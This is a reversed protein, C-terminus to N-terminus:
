SRKRSGCGPRWRQRIAVTPSASGHGIRATGPPSWRVSAFGRRGIRREEGGWSRPQGRFLGGAVQCASEVLDGGDEDRGEVIHPGRLLGVWRGRVGGLCGFATADMPRDPPATSWSGARRLTIQEFQVVELIQGELGGASLEPQAFRPSGAQVGRAMPFRVLSIAGVRPERLDWRM